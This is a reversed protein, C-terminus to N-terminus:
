FKLRNEKANKRYLSEPKLQFRTMDIVLTPESFDAETKQQLGSEIVVRYAYKNNKNRVERFVYMVQNTKEDILMMYVVLAKQSLEKIACTFMGIIDHSYFTTLNGYEDGRNKFVQEDPLVVYVRQYDNLNKNKVADLFFATEQRSPVVRYQLITQYAQTMGFVSLLVLLISFVNKERFPLTMHWLVWAFLFIVLASLAMYCRYLSMDSTTVLNPLSSLFVLVIFVCARLITEKSFIKKVDGTLRWAAIVCGLVLFLLLFVTYFIKPFINWLNLINVIPETFFWQIKALYNTSFVYPNYSFLNFQLFYKKTLQLIGAYIGFGLFTSSFLVGMKVINERWSLQKSFLIWFGFVSWYFMAGPQYTSLAAVFLIASFFM